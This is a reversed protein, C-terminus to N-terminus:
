ICYWYSICAAIFTILVPLKVPKFGIAKYAINCLTLTIIMPYGIYIIPGATLSLVTSLGFISLPMSLLLVTILSNIFSLKTKSQIYEAVVAALAIATSLCAMLVALAIIFAGHSGLVRFSIIRFLEGSNIFGLNHGYLVGLVSMGIYILALLSVGILGAKLGMLARMKSSHAIAAGMTKKILSLIISSFFIAGVLDLTEYGLILNHTFVSWSSTTNTAVTGGNILGKAIIIILSLLLLPSIINGLLSVIKSEKYTALFTIGLFLLAFVASSALTIEQMFAFPIFPAIMTHSLTVIRPIAILPGIIIICAGILFQGPIKGLRGFFTVYNGDFLIMALLGLLPLLVTTILFGIMGIVTQNGSFMGVALPYMLNGAGFFMSFIALGLSVTPSTLFRKM